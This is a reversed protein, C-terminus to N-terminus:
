VDINKDCQEVAIVDVVLTNTPPDLGLDDV